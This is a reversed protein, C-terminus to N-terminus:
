QFLVRPPSHNRTTTYHNQPSQYPKLTTVATERRRTVSGTSTLSCVKSLSLLRKNDHKQKSLSLLRKNHHKQKSLSLLWLSLLWLSLLRKQRTKAEVPEAVVPEAVKKTTNQSLHSLKDFDGTILAEKKKYNNM